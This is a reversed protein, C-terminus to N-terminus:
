KVKVTVSDREPIAIGLERASELWLAIAEAINRLAEERTAGYSHCGKLSPTYVHYGGEEESELVVEFSEVASKM